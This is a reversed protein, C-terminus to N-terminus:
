MCCFCKLFMKLDWKFTNVHKRKSTQKSTKHYLYKTIISLPAQQDRWACLANSLFESIPVLLVQCLWWNLSPHRCFVFLYIATSPKHQLTLWHRVTTKSVWFVSTIVTVEVVPWQKNIKFSPLFSINLSM